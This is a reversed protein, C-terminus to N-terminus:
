SSDHGTAGRRRGCIANEGILYGAVTRVRVTPLPLGLISAAPLLFEILVQDWVARDAWVEHIVVGDASDEVWHFLCSPLARGSSTLELCALLMMYTSMSCGHLQIDAAVAVDDFPHQRPEPPDPPQQGGVHQPREDPTTDAQSTPRTM